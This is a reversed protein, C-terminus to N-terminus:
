FLSKEFILSFERPIKRHGPFLADSGRRCFFPPNFIFFAKPSFQLYIPTLKSKTPAPSCDLPTQYM